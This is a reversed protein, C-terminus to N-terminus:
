PKKGRQPVSPTLSRMATNGKWKEFFLVAQEHSKGQTKAKLDTYLEVLKKFNTPLKETAEFHQFFADLLLFLASNHLTSIDKIATLADSLRQVGAYKNTLLWAMKEGLYQMDIKKVQILNMLVESAM